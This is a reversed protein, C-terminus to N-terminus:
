ARRSNCIKTNAPSEISKNQQRISTKLRLLSFFISVLFATQDAISVLILMCPYCSVGVWFEGSPSLEAQECCVTKTGDLCQRDDGRPGRLLPNAKACADSPGESTARKNVTPPSNFVCEQQGQIADAQAPSNTPLLNTDLSGHGSIESKFSTSADVTNPMQNQEDSLNSPQQNDGFDIGSVTSDHEADTLSASPDGATDVMLNDSLPKAIIAPLVTTLFLLFYQMAFEVLTTPKYSPDGYSIIAINRNRHYRILSKTKQSFHFFRVM